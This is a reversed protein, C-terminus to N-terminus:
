ATVAKRCFRHFVRGLLFCVVTLMCLDHCLMFLYLQKNTDAYGNGLFPLPYQMVGTFLVLVLLLTLLRGRPDQCRRLRVICGVLMGGYLLVYQWFHRPTVYPRLQAWWGFRTHDAHATEAEGAFHHLSIAPSVAHQATIELAQYLYAPHTIYYKLLGMTNIKSYIMEQAKPSYPAAVMAAPDDYGTKGRDAALAPDLGMEELMAEPEDTLMLAGDFIASFLTAGENIANNWAYLLLCCAGSWLIHVTMFVACFWPMVRKWNARRLLHVALILLMATWFPWGLVAQPKGCLFLSTALCCPILMAQASTGKAQIATVFCGLALLLGVFLMAEGYLSNLWALHMSGLLMVAGPLAPLLGRWGWRMAAFRAWLFIALLLMAVYVAALCATSLPTVATDGVLNTILRLLSVPWVASFSAEIPTLQAWNMPQWRWQENVEHFYPWGSGSFRQVGDVGMRDAIRQFDGNDAAGLHPQLFLVALIIAAAAMTCALAAAGPRRMAPHPAQELSPLLM